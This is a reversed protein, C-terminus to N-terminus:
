HDEESMAEWQAIDYSIHLLSKVYYVGFQELKKNFCVAWRSQYGWYLVSLFSLDALLRSDIHQTM